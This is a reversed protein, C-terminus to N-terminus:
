AGNGHQLIHMDLDPRIFVRRSNIMIWDSSGGVDTPALDDVSVMIVDDYASIRM